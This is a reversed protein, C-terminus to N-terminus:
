LKVASISGNQLITMYPKPARTSFYEDVAKRYREWYGYDDILLVGCEVFAGEIKRGVVYRVAEWAAPAGSHEVMTYAQVKAYEQLFAPPLIDKTRDKTIKYGFHGIARSIIKRM